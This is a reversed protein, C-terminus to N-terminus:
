SKETTDPRNEENQVLDVNVIEAPPLSSVSQGPLPQPPTGSPSLAYSSNDTIVQGTKELVERRWAYEHEMKLQRLLMLRNILFCFAILVALPIAIWPLYPLLSQGLKVLSAFAGDVFYCLAGLLLIGVLVIITPANRVAAYFRRMSEPVASDDQGSESSETQDDHTMASSLWSGAVHIGLVLAVPGLVAAIMWALWPFRAVPPGGPIEPIAHIIGYFFAIGGTILELLFIATLLYFLADQHKGEYWAPRHKNM